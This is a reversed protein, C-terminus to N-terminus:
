GTVGDSALKGMGRAKMKCAACSVMKIPVDDVRGCVFRAGCRAITGGDHWREYVAHVLGGHTAARHVIQKRGLPPDCGVCIGSDTQTPTRCERCPRKRNTPM